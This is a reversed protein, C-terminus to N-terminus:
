SRAARHLENAVVLEVKGMVLVVVVISARLARQGARANALRWGGAMRAGHEMAEEEKEVLVRGVCCGSEVCGGTRVAGRKRGLLNGARWAEVAEEGALAGELELARVHFSKKARRRVRRRM